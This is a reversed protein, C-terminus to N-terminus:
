KESAVIALFVIRMAQSLVASEMPTREEGGGKFIEELKLSNLDYGQKKANVVDYTFTYFQPESSPPHTANPLARTFLLYTPLYTPLNTPQNTPQHTSRGRRRGSSKPSARALFSHSRRARIGLVSAPM